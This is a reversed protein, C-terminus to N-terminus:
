DRQEDKSENPDDKGIYKYVKSRSIHYTYKNGSIQLATGFPLVGKRLGMRIYIQSVELIQSAELVTM